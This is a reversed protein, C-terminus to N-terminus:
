FNEDLFCYFELPIPFTFFNVFFMLPVDGGMVFHFSTMSVLWSGIAYNIGFYLGVSLGVSIYRKINSM